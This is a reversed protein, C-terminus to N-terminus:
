AQRFMYAAKFPLRLSISLVSSSPTLSVNACSARVLWAPTSFAKM